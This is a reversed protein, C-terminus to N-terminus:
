ASLIHVVKSLVVQTNENCHQFSSCEKKSFVGQPLTPCVQVVPFLFHLSFFSLLFRLPPPFALHLYMMACSGNEKTSKEIIKPDIDFTLGVINSLFLILNIELM